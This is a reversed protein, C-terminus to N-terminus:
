AQIYFLCSNSCCSGEGPVSLARMKLRRQYYVSRVVALVQNNLLLQLNLLVGLGYVQAKLPLAVGDLMVTIGTTGLNSMQGM